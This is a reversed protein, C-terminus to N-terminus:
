AVRRGMRGAYTLALAVADSADAAVGSLDVGLQLGAMRAVHSKAARGDGTVAQKAVNAGISTVPIGADAAVLLFAGRCESLSLGAQAHEGSFAKELVIATPSHERILERVGDALRKLRTESARSSGASLTGCDILRHQRSGPTLAAWGTVNGPDLALITM